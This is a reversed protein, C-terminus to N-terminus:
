DCRHQVDAVDSLLARAEAMRDKEWAFSRSAQPLSATAFLTYAPANRHKYCLRHRVNCAIVAVAVSVQKGMNNVRQMGCAPLLTDTSFM